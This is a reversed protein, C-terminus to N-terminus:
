GPDRHRGLVHVRHVAQRLLERGVLLHELVDAQLEQRPRLDAHEAVVARALRRDQLDHGADLGLVAAVRHECGACRDAQELLLIGQELDLVNAPM